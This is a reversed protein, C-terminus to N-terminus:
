RSLWQENIFAVPISEEHEDIDTPQADLFHSIQRLPCLRNIPWFLQIYQTLSLSHTTLLSCFSGANTFLGWQWFTLFFFIDVVLWLRMSHICLVRYHSVSFFVLFTVLSLVYRPSFNQRMGSTRPHDSIKNQPHLPSAVTFLWSNRQPRFDM